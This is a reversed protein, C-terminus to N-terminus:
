REDVLVQLRQAAVLLEDDSWDEVDKENIIETVTAAWDLWVRAASVASKDSPDTARRYLADLVDQAREVRMLARGREIIENQVWPDAAYNRLTRTSVDLFEAFATKTSIDRESAPTLVWEVYAEQKARTEASGTKWSEGEGYVDAM